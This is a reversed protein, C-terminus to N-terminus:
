GGLLLDVFPQIDRGDVVGDANIDAICDQPTGPSLLVSIFVSIDSIGVGGGDFDGTHNAMEVTVSACTSSTCGSSPNRTRAYYTTTSTPSVVPTAGGPVATGGCSGTFWDVTDGPDVTASLTSSGGACVAPPTATAGTPPDPALNVTVRATGLDFAPSGVYGPLAGSNDAWIPYFFGGAFTLGNYDGYDVGSGATSANSSGASVQINPRFSAGYDTSITAWNQATNNGSSNRCDMWAVAIIGTTQDIAIRPNFQSRTTSDDNAKVPTSWSTGNNDSFRVYIDTNNSENPTEDTYVLYVRGNHPGGSRDWALGAEADVSRNPQAPIYDFGGVNTSTITIRSGFGSSGLGDPDTNCYITSPGQDNTPSQYTLMVQGSPGIAIDGFSGSASPVSLASTFTGVSGLGSVSAGRAVMNGSLNYCVWVTNAGTTITPQDISGSFSAIQSFSAGGNTSLGVIAASVSSNIYCIFLNGFDDWSASPDCCAGALGDSGTAMTRKSWTTGGNTSYAGFLGVGSDINSFAFLRQTNTPDIAIAPEAENGTRTSVDVNAGASMSPCQAVAGGPSLLVVMLLAAGAACVTEARISTGPTM